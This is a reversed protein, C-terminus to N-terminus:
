GALHDRANGIWTKDFLKEPLASPCGFAATRAAYGPLAGGHLVVGNWTIRQMNPMWADDYM